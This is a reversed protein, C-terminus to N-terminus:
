AARCGAIYISVFMFSFLTLIPIKATGRRVMIDEIIVLIRIQTISPM